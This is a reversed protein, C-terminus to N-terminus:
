VSLLCNTLALRLDASIEALTDAWDKPIRWASTNHRCFDVWLRGALTMGPHCMEPSYPNSDMCQGTEINRAAAGPSDIQARQGVGAQAIQNVLPRGRRSQRSDQQRGDITLQSWEAM